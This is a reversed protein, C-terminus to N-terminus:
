KNSFIRAVRLTISFLAYIALWPDLLYDWLNDSEYWGGAWAITAMAICSAILYYKFAWASLAILLLAAIFWTDGYGLRYPDFSTFGLALPYLMLAVLAILTLLVYRAKIDETNCGLSPMLLACCLLVLMTISLDGSVGRVYAALPIGGLPILALVFVVALLTTRQIRTFGAIGPLLLCAASIAVAVSTLGTLDTFNLM